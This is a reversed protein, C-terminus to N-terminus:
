PDASGKQAVDTRSSVYVGVLSAILIAIYFQGFVAEMYALTRAVPQVPTVDGYGLTTLTVFSYSIFESLQLHLPAASLGRFSGPSLTHLLLFLIAWILGLLLYICVAGVIKNADVPTVFLVHRATIITSIGLFSLIVIISIFKLIQLPVFITTVTIVIGVAALGGALWFWRPEARLSGLSVALTASLALENLAVGAPGYQQEAIPAAILTILLGVLLYFFNDQRKM